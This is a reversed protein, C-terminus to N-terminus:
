GVRVMASQQLELGTRALFVGPFYPPATLAYIAQRVEEQTARAAELGNRMRLLEEIMLRDVQAGNEKSVTRFQQLMEVTPDLERTTGGSALLAQFFSVAASNDPPTQNRM